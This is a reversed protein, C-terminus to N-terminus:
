RHCIQLAAQSEVRNHHHGLRVTKELINCSKQNTEKASDIFYRFIRSDYSKLKDKVGRFYLRELQDQAPEDLALAEQILVPVAEAVKGKRVLQRGLSKKSSYGKRTLAEQRLTQRIQAFGNLIEEITEESYAQNRNAKRRLQSVQGRANVAADALSDSSAARFWWVMAKPLNREVGSGNAYMSALLDQAELLGGQAAAELHGFAESSRGHARLTIGLRYHADSFGPELQVAREYAEFSKSVAGLRYHAKGLNFYAHAWYPRLDIVQNFAIAARASDKTSLHAVGLHYLVEPWQPRYILALSYEEISEQMNGMMSLAVGLNYHLLAAQDTTPHRQMGTRWDSVAKSWQGVKTWVVGRLMWASAFNPELALFKELPELTPEWNSQTALAVALNFYASALDPQLTIAQRFSQTAEPVNGQLLRILGINSVAEAFDPKLELAQRWEREATPLERSEFYAVGLQFHADAWDPQWYIVEQFKSAAQQSNGKILYGLGLAYHAEALDPQIGLAKRWQTMAKDLKEQRLLSVGYNYSVLASIHYHLPVGGPDLREAKTWAAIAGKLKGTKALAVGLNHFADAYGPYLRSAERFEDIAVDLENTLYFDVGLRLREEAQEKVESPSPETPEAQISPPFVVGVSELFLCVVGIGVCCRSVLSFFDYGPRDTSNM